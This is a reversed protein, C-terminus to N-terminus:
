SSLQGFHLEFLKLIVSLIDIISSSPFIAFVIPVSISIIEESITDFLTVISTADLINARRKCRQYIDYQERLADPTLVDHASNDESVHIIHVVSDDGFYDSVRDNARVLENDPLFKNLNTKFEIEPIMLAFLMSIILIVIVIGAAFRTIMRGLWRFM